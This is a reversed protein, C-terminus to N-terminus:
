LLAAMARALLSARMMQATQFDPESYRSTGTAQSVRSWMREWWRSSRAHHPSPTETRVSALPQRYSGQGASATMGIPEGRAFEMM